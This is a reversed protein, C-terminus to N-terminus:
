LERNPSIEVQSQVLRKRYISYVVPRDCIVGGIPKLRKTKCDMVPPSYRGVAGVM